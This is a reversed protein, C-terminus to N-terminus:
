DEKEEENIQVDLFENDKGFQINIKGRDDADRKVSDEPRLILNVSEPKGKAQVDWDQVDKFFAKLQDEGTEGFNKIYAYLFNKTLASYLPKYVGKGNQAMTRALYVYSNKLEGSKSGPVFKEDGCFVFGFRSENIAEKLPREWNSALECNFNTLFDSAIEDDEFNIHVNVNEPLVRKGFHKKLIRAQQSAVLLGAAVYSADIMVAPALIQEDSDPMKILKDAM